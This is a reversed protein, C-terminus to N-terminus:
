QIEEIPLAVLVTTGMNERSNVNLGYKEGYCLKLRQNINYLGISEHIEPNRNEISDRLKKLQEITMGCGNDSIDIRLREANIYVHVRISGDQEKDELGHLIANEVIPQLLLPLIRIDETHIEPEVECTFGIKDGFRFKQISVYNEVYELEKELTTFATGTNDLVYRLSKGLLKIAGAVERDGVTLAKMRISELTNYLFHPNIQSALMKFEMEQQKNRLQTESISAKYMEADQEQIRQVMRELESFAESVEDKGRFDSVINYDGQSAKHMENRLMGMRESFYQTYLVILVGPILIAAAMISLCVIVISQISPYVLRDITSIYLRSNSQYMFQTVTNQISKQGDIMVDGKYTFHSYDFRIGLDPADAYYKKNSAYCLSEDQLFVITEFDSSEVRERLYNEEISIVLFAPEEMGQPAINCLLSLLYSTSGKEDVRPLVCWLNERSSLAQAYLESHIFEEPIECIVSDDRQKESLNVWIKTKYRKSDSVDSSSLLIQAVEKQLQEEDMHTAYAKLDESLKTDAKLNEATYYVETTIEYFTAKVRLNDSSVLGEHYGKLLNFITVILFIGLVLIPLLLAVLYTTYLQGKIKGRGFLGQILSSSFRPKDYISKEKKGNRNTKM